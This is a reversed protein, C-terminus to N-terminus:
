FPIQETLVENGAVDIYTCTMKSLDIKWKEIGTESCDKCFQLFDTAGKQHAQLYKKFQEIQLTSAINIREYKPLLAVTYNNNGVYVSRGDQVFTEYYSVGLKKCDQIYNPFDAGTKVKSHAHILDEKTYM